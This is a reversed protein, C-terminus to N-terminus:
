KDIKRQTELDQGKDEENGEGKKRSLVINGLVPCDLLRYYGFQSPFIETLVVRFVDSRVVNIKSISVRGIARNQFIFKFGRLFHGITEASGIAEPKEVVVWLQFNIKFVKVVIM